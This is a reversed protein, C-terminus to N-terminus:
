ASPESRARAMQELAQEMLLDSTLATLPFCAGGARWSRSRESGVTNQTIRHFISPLSFTEANVFLIAFSSDPLCSVADPARISAAIRHAILPATDPSLEPDTTMCLVAVPYRLRQSKTVEVDALYRFLAEDVVRSIGAAADM